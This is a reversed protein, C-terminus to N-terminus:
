VWLSRQDRSLADTWGLRLCAYYADNSVATDVGRRLRNIRDPLDPRRLELVDCKTGSTSQLDTGSSSGRNTQLALCCCLYNWQFYQFEELREQVFFLPRPLPFLDVTRMRILIDTFRHLCHCEMCVHGLNSKDPRPRMKESGRIAHRCALIEWLSRSVGISTNQIGESAFGTSTADRAIM